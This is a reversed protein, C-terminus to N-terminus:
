SGTLERAAQKDIFWFLNGSEPQVRAAPYKTAAEEPNGIIEKVKEAKNTGTVLFVVNRAANIVKGSLSVRQRGSVPHTTPVCIAKSEWLEMQHPFLSATHGDDGIGLMVIDFMPVGDRSALEQQLLKGYRQAEEAPENEGFIRFIKDQSMGIKDFLHERTMRYNSEPHDPPVCREDGWFFLIQRWDIAGEPLSAWYDFLSQPTSGGSLAITIEEKEALREKLWATFSSNLNDITSYIQLNM